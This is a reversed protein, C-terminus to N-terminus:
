RRLTCVLRELEFIDHGDHICGCGREGNIDDGVNDARPAVDSFTMNFGCHRLPLGVMGIGLDVNSPMRKLEVGIQREFAGISLAVEFGFEPPWLSRSFNIRSDRCGTAIRPKFQVEVADLLLRIREGRVRQDGIRLANVVSAVGIGNDLMEELRIEDIAFEDAVHMRQDVDSRSAPQIRVCRTGHEGLAFCQLLDGILVRAYPL